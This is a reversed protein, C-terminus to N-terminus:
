HSSTPLSRGEVVARELAAAIRHDDASVRIQHRRLRRSVVHTLALAIGLGAAGVWIGAVEALVGALAFVAPLPADVVAMGFALHRDWIGTARHVRVLAVVFTILLVSALVACVAGVVGLRAAILVGLAASSFVLISHWIARQFSALRTDRPRSAIMLVDVLVLLSVISVSGVVFGHNLLVFGCLGGLIALGLMPVESRILLRVNDGFAAGRLLSLAAAM